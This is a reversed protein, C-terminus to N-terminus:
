NSSFIPVDAGNLCLDIHRTKIVKNIISQYRFLLIFETYNVIMMLIVIYLTLIVPETLNMKWTCM